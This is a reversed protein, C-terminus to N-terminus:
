VLPAGSPRQPPPPLAPAELAARLRRLNARLEFGSRLRVIPWGILLFPLTFEADTQVTIRTRAGLADFLVRTRYAGLAGESTEGRLELERGEVLRTVQFTRGFDRYKKGRRLYQVAIGRSGQHVPAGAAAGDAERVDVVATNWLHYTAFLGRAVADFVQDSARDVVVSARTRM